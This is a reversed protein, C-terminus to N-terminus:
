PATAKQHLRKLLQLAPPHNSGKLTRLAEDRRGANWLLIAQNYTAPYGPSKELGQVAQLRTSLAGGQNMEVQWRLLCYHEAPKLYDGMAMRTSLAESWDKVFLSQFMCRQIPTLKVPQWGDGLAHTTFAGVLGLYEADDPNTLDAQLSKKDRIRRDLASLFLQARYRGIDVYLDPTTRQVFQWAAAQFNLFASKARGSQRNKERVSARKLAAHKELLTRTQPKKTLTPTTLAALYQAWMQAPLPPQLCTLAEKATKQNTCALATLM